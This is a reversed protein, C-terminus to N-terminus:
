FARGESALQTVIGPSLALLVAGHPRDTGYRATVLIFDGPRIMDFADAFYGPGPRRTTVERSYGVAHPRSPDAVHEYFRDIDCVEDLPDPTRYSWLTFGEATGLVNLAQPNYTM